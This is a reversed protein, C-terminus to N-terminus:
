EEESDERDNHTDSVGLHVTRSNRKASPLQICCCACALEVEPPVGPALQVARENGVAVPDNLSISVIDASASSSAIVEDFIGSVVRLGGAPEVAGFDRAGVVDGLDVVSACTL